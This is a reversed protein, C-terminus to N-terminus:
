GSTLIPAISRFKFSSSDRNEWFIKLNGTKNAISVDKKSPM